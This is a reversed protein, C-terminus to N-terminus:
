IGRAAPACLRSASARSVGIAWTACGQRLMLTYDKIVPQSVSLTYKQHRTKVLRKSGTRQVLTCLKVTITQAKRQPTGRAVHTYQARLAMYIYICQEARAATTNQCYETLLVIAPGNMRAFCTQVERSQRALLEHVPGSYQPRHREFLWDIKQAGCSRMQLGAFKLLKFTALLDGRCAQKLLCPGVRMQDAQKHHQQM